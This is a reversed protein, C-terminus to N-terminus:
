FKVVEFLAPRLHSCATKGEYVNVTNPLTLGMCASNYSNGDWSGIWLTGKYGRKTLHSAVQPLIHADISATTIDQDLDAILEFVPFSVGFDLFQFVRGEAEFTEVNMQGVYGAILFPRVVTGACMSAETYVRFFMTDVNLTMCNGSRTSSYTDGHFASVWVEGEYGVGRLANSLDKINSSDVVAALSTNFLGQISNISTFYTSWPTSPGAFFISGSVEIIRIDPSTLPLHQLDSMGTLTSPVPSTQALLATFGLTLITLIM